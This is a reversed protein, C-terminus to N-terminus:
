NLPYLYPEKAPMEIWTFIDGSLKLYHILFFNNFYSETIEDCKFHFPWDLAMVNYQPYLVLCLTSCTTYQVNQCLLLDDPYEM